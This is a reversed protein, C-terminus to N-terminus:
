AHAILSYFPPFILESCKSGTHVMIALNNKNKIGFKKAKIGDMIQDIRDIELFHNGAGLTGLENKVRKIAKDSVSSINSPMSGNEETRGM